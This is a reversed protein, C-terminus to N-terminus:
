FWQTITFPLIKESRAKLIYSEGRHRSLTVATFSLRWRPPPFADGRHCSNKYSQVAQPVSKYWIQNLSAIFPDRRGGIKPPSNYAKSLM